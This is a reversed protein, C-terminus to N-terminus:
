NNRCLLIILSIDPETALPVYQLLNKCCMAHMEEPLLYYGTKTNACHM